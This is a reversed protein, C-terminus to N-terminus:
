DKNRAIIGLFCFRVLGFDMKNCVVSILLLPFIQFLSLLNLGLM